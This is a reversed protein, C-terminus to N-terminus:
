IALNNWGLPKLTNQHKPKKMHEKVWSASPDVCFRRGLITKFVVAKVPCNSRTRWYSTIRAVPIKGKTFKFCCELPVHAGQYDCSALQVSCLLLVLLLAFLSRM